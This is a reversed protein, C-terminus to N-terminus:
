ATHITDNPRRVEIDKSMVAHICAILLVGTDEKSLYRGLAM